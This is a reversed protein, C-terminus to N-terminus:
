KKVGGSAPLALTCRAIEARHHRFLAADAPTHWIRRDGERLFDRSEIFAEDSLELVDTKAIRLVREAQAVLDADAGRDRSARIREELLTIAAVDELGDRVAEWRVSPVPEAGPYVLAYEDKLKPDAKWLDAQTQSHTWFGIGELGFYKARWANARNYRLPSLSKVQGVCEYSWVTKGSDMIRRIRPDQALLGSVLRMNPCWIDIFPEIREFDKWSITPVPDTYIRFKPDAERLLKGASILEEVSKGYDLGPEDVPYFAYNAYSLGGAHLHDRLAHLYSVEARRRAEEPPPSAFKLNPHGLHLLITGRGRLRDLEVDLSSWDVTLRGSEDVQGEPIGAGRPFVNVGHRSMDELAPQATTFWRNPVYDWTCLSLPLPTPLELDLVEILLDLVPPAAIGEPPTVRIAGRYQGPQAGRTDVSVWTKVARHPPVTVTGTKDLLPLADAATEGNLTPTSVVQRLTITGTFPTGDPAVPADFRISVEAPRDHSSAIIFAGQDAEGRYLGRIIVASDTEGTTEDRSPSLRDDRFWGYPDTPWVRLNSGREAVPSAANQFPPAWVVQALVGGAADRIAARIPVKDNGALRPVPIDFSSAATLRGQIRSGKEAHDVSVAASIFAGNPNSVRVAAPQDENEGLIPMVQVQGPERAHPYPWVRPGPRLRYALLSATTVLIGDRGASADRIAVPSAAPLGNVRVDDVLQGHHDFAHIHQRYTSLVIEPHRDGNVDILLPTARGKSRYEHTWIRRGADDLAHLNGWLGTCLIWPTSGGHGRLAISMDIQDGVETKWLVEGDLRLGFLSGAGAGCVILDIDPTFMVEARSRIEGGLDRKWLLNGAPDIAHLATGASVLLAPSDPKLPAAQPPARCPGAELNKQWAISGDQKLLTVTGSEDAYCYALEGEWPVAAPLCRGWVTTGPLQYKWVVRYERDLGLILGEVSGVLLRAARRGPTLTATTTWRGPPLQAVLGDEGSGIASGDIRWALVQGGRNVALIESTGDGELDAVLPATEVPWQGTTRVWEIEMAHATPVCALLVAATRLGCVPTSTM